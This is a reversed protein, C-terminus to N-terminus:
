PLQNDIRFKLEDKLIQNDGAFSLPGKLVVIGRFDKAIAQRRPAVEPSNPDTIVLIIYERGNAGIYSEGLDDVRTKGNLNGTLSSLIQKREEETLTGGGVQEEICRKLLAEIAAIKAEIAQITSDVQDLLSLIARQNDKLRKIIVKADGIMDGGSQIVGAPFFGAPLPIHAAIEVIVQAVKIPKDLTKPLKRYKEVKKKYTTIVKKLNNLQKSIRDLVPAPPCTNRLKEIIENLVKNAYEIIMIKVQGVFTAVLRTLHAKPDKLAELIYAHPM